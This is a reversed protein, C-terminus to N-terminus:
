SPREKLTSTVKGDEVVFVGINEPVEAPKEGVISALITTEKRSAKEVFEFISKGLSEGRDILELGFGEPYLDSLLSSLRMIQSTSLMGATTEEFVLAGDKDFSLGDIGIEKAADALRAAKQAEIERGEKELALLRTKDTQREEDRKVNAQYQEARVNQAGAESIQRDLETTDVVGDVVGQLESTDPKEPEPLQELAPHSKLWDRDEALTKQMEAIDRELGAINKKAEAIHQKRKDARRNHAAVAALSGAHEDTITRIKTWAETTKARHADQAAKRQAQLDTVDVVEVPTLDIKGYAKITIRLEKAASSCETAKADLDATDVPFLEVFFKRREGESMNLLHHNDLVFPNLLRRIEADPRKVPEGDRVFVVSRAKTSGDKAVYWSRSISGCDLTISVSAEKEGHRIIDSPFSGGLCWKVANLITTKGARIQGYFLILPQDFPITTDEIIGVNKITLSAVKVRM